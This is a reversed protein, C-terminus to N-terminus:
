ASETEGTPTAPPSGGPPQAGDRALPGQRGNEEASASENGMKSPINARVKMRQVEATETMNQRLAATAEERSSGPHRKMYITVPSELGLGIDAEDQKQQEAPDTPYAIPAHEVELFADPDPVESLGHASAVVCLQRYYQQEAEVFVPLRRTRVEALGRESLAAGTSTQYTGGQKYREPNIGRAAAARLEEADMCDLSAKLDVTWDVVTVGGSTLDVRLIAGPDLLQKFGSMKGLYNYLLKKVGISLTLDVLDEGTTIDWIEDQWSTKRVLVMPIQGYPNAGNEEPQGTLIPKDDEIEFEAHWEDTWLRYLTHKMGGLDRYTDIILVAEVITPDAETTVLTVTEGTAIRHRLFKEGRYTIVDPWILVENCAEVLLEVQQWFVDFGTGELLALYREGQEPARPTTRRAPAKYAVCLEACIHHFPNRSIDLADRNKGLVATAVEPTVWNEFRAKLLPAWEDRIMRVRRGVAERRTREQTGNAYEIIETAYEELTLSSREYSTLVLQEARTRAFVIGRPWTTDLLQSTSGTTTM